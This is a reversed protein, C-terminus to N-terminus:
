VTSSQWQIAAACDVCLSSVDGHLDQPALIDEFATNTARVTVTAALTVPCDPLVNPSISSFHGFIPEAEWSTLPPLCPSAPM